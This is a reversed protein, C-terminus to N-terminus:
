LNGGETNGLEEKHLNSLSDHSSRERKEGQGELCPKETHPTPSNSFFVINKKEQILPQPFNVGRLM